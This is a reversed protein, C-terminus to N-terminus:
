QIDQQHFQLDKSLLFLDLLNFPAGLKTDLLGPVQPEHAAPPMLGGTSWGESPLIDCSIGGIPAEQQQQEETEQHNAAGWDADDGRSLTHGPYVESLGNVSLVEVECKLLM